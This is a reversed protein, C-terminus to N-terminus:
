CECMRIGGTVNRPPSSMHYAVHGSSGHSTDVSASSGYGRVTPSELVLAEAKLLRVIGLYQAIIMPHRSNDGCRRRIHECQVAHTNSLIPEPLNVRHAERRTASKGLNTGFSELKGTERPLNAEMSFAGLVPLMELRCSLVRIGDGHHFGKHTADVPTCGLATCM